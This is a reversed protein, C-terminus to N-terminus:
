RVPNLVKFSIWSSSPVIQLNDVDFKKDDDFIVTFSDLQIEEEINDLLSFIQQNVLDEYEEFKSLLYKPMRDLNVSGAYYEGLDEVEAIAVVNQMSDVIEVVKTLM